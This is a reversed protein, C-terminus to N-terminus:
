CWGAGQETSPGTDGLLTDALGDGDVDGATSSQLQVSRRPGHLARVTAQESLTDFHLLGADSRIEPRVAELSAASFMHASARMWLTAGGLLEESGDGDTDGVAALFRVPLRMSGPQIVAHALNVVGNALGDAEDAAALDSMALVNSEIVLWRAPGDTRAASHVPYQAWLTNSGNLLKWSNPQGAM